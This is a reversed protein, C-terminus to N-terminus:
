QTPACNAFVVGIVEKGEQEQVTRAELSGIQYIRFKTGDETSKDFVPALTALKLMQEIRVHCDPRVHLERQKQPKAGDQIDISPIWSMPFLPSPGNVDFEKSLFHDKRQQRTKEEEQLLISLKHMYEPDPNPPVFLDGENRRDSISPIFLNRFLKADEDKIISNDDTTINSWFANGFIGCNGSSSHPAMQIPASLDFGM